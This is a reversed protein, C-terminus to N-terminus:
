FADSLAIANSVIQFFQHTKNEDFLACITCLICDHGVTGGSGRMKEMAFYILMVANSIIHEFSKVKQVM